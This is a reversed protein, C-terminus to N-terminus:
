GVSCSMGPCHVVQRRRFTRLVRRDSPPSNTSRPDIQGAETTRSAIAGAALAPSTWASITLERLQRTLYTRLTPLVVSDRGGFQLAAGARGAPTQTAGTVTGHNGFGSLDAVYVKNDSSTFTDPEFTM